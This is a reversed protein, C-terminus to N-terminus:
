REHATFSRNVNFNLRWIRADENRKKLRHHLEELEDEKVQFALLRAHNVRNVGDFENARIASDNRVGLENKLVIIESDKQIIVRKHNRECIDLDTTLRLQRESTSASESSGYYQSSCSDADRRVQRGDYGDVQVNADQCEDTQVCVERVTQAAQSSADVYEICVSAQNSCEALNM